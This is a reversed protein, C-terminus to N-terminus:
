RGADAMRDLTDEIPFSRMRVAYELTDGRGNLALTGDPERTVRDVGLYIDPAAPRNVAIERLCAEQRKKRSGFDMYAFAVPRKIKLTFEPGVFVDAGHTTVHVTGRGTQTPLWARITAFDAESTDAM